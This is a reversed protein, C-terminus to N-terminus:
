SATADNLAKLLCEELDEGAQYHVAKVGLESAARVHEETDDIFLTKARDLGFPNILSLFAEPEPKRVRLRHSYGIFEFLSEFHAWGFRSEIGAEFHRQHVSNTNSLIFLRYDVSLRRLLEFKEIPFDHLMACWAEELAKKSDTGTREQLGRFFEEESISGRELDKFFDNQQEKSFAEEPNELGLKRFAEITDRYDVNLLVVGLDFIINEM